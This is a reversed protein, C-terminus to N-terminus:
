RHLAKEETLVAIKDRLAALIADANGLNDAICNVIASGVVVGNQLLFAM